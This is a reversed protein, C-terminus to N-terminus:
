SFNLPCTSPVELSWGPFVKQLPSIWLWEGPIYLIQKLSSFLLSGEFHASCFLFPLPSSSFGVGNLSGSFVSSLPYLCCTLVHAPHALQSYILWCPTYDRSQASSSLFGRHLSMMHHPLHALLNHLMLIVQFHALFLKLSVEGGLLNNCRDQYHSSKAITNLIGFSM